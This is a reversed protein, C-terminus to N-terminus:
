PPKDVIECNKAKLYRKPSRHAETKLTEYKEDTGSFSIGPQQFCPEM